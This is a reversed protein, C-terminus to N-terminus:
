KSVIYFDLSGKCYKGPGAHEGEKVDFYVCDVGKVSTLSYSVTAMYSLAGHSGMREGLQEENDLGIFVTGKEKKKYKILPQKYKQFRKNLEGIIKTVDAGKLSKVFVPFDNNEEYDWIGTGYGSILQQIRPQLEKNQFKLYENKEKLQENQSELQEIHASLEQIKRDAQVQDIKARDAKECGAIVLIALMAILLLISKM